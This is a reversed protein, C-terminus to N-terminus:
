QPAGILDSFYKAHVRHKVETDPLVTLVPGFAPQGPVVGQLYITSFTAFDNAVKHDFYVAMQSSGELGFIEALEETYSSDIAAFSPIVEQEYCMVQIHQEPGVFIGSQLMEKGMSSVFPIVVHFYLPSEQSHMSISQYSVSDVKSMTNHGGYLADDIILVHSNKPLQTVFENKQILPMVTPHDETVFGALNLKRLREWVLLLLINESGFKILPLYIYFPKTGIASIFRDLSKELGTILEGHPIYRTWALVSEVLRHQPGDQPFRALYDAARADSISRSSIFRPILLDKDQCALDLRARFSPASRFFDM